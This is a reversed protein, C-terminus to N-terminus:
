VNGVEITFDGELENYSWVINLSLANGSSIAQIIPVIDKIFIEPLHHSLAEQTYNKAFDKITSEHLNQHRLLYLLTGQDPDWPVEGVHGEGTGRTMVM